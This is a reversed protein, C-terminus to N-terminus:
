GLLETKFPVLTGLLSTHMSSINLQVSLLLMTGIWLTWLLHMQFGYSVMSIHPAAINGNMGLFFHSFLYSPHTSTFNIFPLLHFSYYAYRCWYDKVLFGKLLVEELFITFRFHIYQSARHPNRVINQIRWRTHENSNSPPNSPMLNHLDPWKTDAATLTFFITPNGVQIIMEM